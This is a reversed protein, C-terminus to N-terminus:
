AMARLERISKVLREGERTLVPDAVRVLLGKMQLSHLTRRRGSQRRADYTALHWARDEACLMLVEEQKPSLKM